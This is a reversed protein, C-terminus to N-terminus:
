YARLSTGLYETLLQSTKLEKFCDGREGILYKGRDRALRAADPQLTEDCIAKTHGVFQLEIFNRNRALLYM